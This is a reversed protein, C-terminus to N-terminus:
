FDVAVRRCSARAKNKGKKIKIKIKKIIIIKFNLM